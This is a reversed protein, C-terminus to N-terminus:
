VCIDGEYSAQVPVIIYPSSRYYIPDVLVYFKIGDEDGKGEGACPCFIGGKALSPLMRFVSCVLRYCM